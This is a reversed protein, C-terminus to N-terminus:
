CVRGHYHEEQLEGAGALGALLMLVGAGLFILAVIALLVLFATEM